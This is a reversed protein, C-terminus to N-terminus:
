YKGTKWSSVQSVNLLNGLTTPKQVQTQGATGCWAQAQTHVYLWLQVVASFSARFQHFQVNIIIFAIVGTTVM